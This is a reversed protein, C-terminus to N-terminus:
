KIGRCNRPDIDSYSIYSDLPDPFVGIKFIQGLHDARFCTAAAIPAGSGLAMYAYYRDFEDKISKIKKGAFSKQDEFDKLEPYALEISNIDTYILGEGKNSIQVTTESNGKIILSKQKKFNFYSFYMTLLIFFLIACSLFLKYQKNTTGKFFINLAILSVFWWFFANATFRFLNFHLGYPVAINTGIEINRSITHYQLPWGLKEHYATGGYNGRIIVMSLLSLTM